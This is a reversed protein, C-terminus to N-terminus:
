HMESPAPIDAIVQSSFHRVGESRRLNWIVETFDPSVGFTEILGRAFGSLESLIRYHMLFVDISNDCIMSLDFGARVGADSFARDLFMEFLARYNMSMDIEGRILDRELHGFDSKACVSGAVLSTDRLIQLVFAGEPYIVGLCSELYAEAGSLASFFQFAMSLAEDIEDAPSSLHGAGIAEIMEDLCTALVKTHKAKFSEKLDLVRTREDM